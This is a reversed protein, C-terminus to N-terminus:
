TLKGKLQELKQKDFLAMIEPHNDIAFDCKNSKSLNIDDPLVQLNWPVHLGCIGDGQLPVIHDVHYTQGSIARLDKALWYYNNMESIQDKTLWRPTSCKFVKKRSGLWKKVLAPNRKQYERSRAKIKQKNSQYYQRDKQRKSARWDPNKSLSDKYAKQYERYSPNNKYKSHYRDLAREQLAKKHRKNYKKMAQNQRDKFDQSDKREEYWQTQQLVRQEKRCRESCYKVRWSTGEPLSVGCNKCTM